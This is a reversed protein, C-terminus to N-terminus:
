ARDGVRTSPCGTPRPEVRHRLPVKGGLVRSVTKSRAAHSLGRRRRDRGPSILPGQSRASSAFWGVRTGPIPAFEHHEYFRAAAADIADVVVVKGRVRGAAETIIGLTVVLLESGLRQGQLDSALALKALLVAPIQRPAERGQAKSLSERDITHPAILFYGVVRGDGDLLIYTRTGQGMTTRAHLRLWDNLEDNGCDFAGLDHHEGLPDALYTVSHPYSTASPGAERGGGLAAVGGTNPAV